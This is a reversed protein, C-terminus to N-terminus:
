LMKRVRSFVIWQAYSYLLSLISGVLYLLSQGLRLEPAGGLLAGVALLMAVFSGFCALISFVQGVRLSINDLQSSRSRSFIKTGCQVCRDFAVRVETKCTPCRAESPM